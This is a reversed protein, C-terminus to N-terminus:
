VYLFSLGVAGFWRLVCVACKVPVGSVHFTVPMSCVTFRRLTFHSRLIQFPYGTNVSAELVTNAIYIYSMVFAQCFDALRVMTLETVAATGLGKQRLVVGTMTPTGAPRLHFFRLLHYVYDRLIIHIKRLECVLLHM